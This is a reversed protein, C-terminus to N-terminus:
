LPIFVFTEPADLVGPNDQIFRIGANRLVQAANIDRDHIEGCHPCEWSRDSLELKKGRHIGTNSCIHSSPFFRDAFFIKCHGSHLAKYKLMNILIGWAADQISKALRRNKLMNLISLIELVIVQNENVIKRSLNHYQDKRQNAVRQDLIAVQVRNKEFNASGKQKRSLNKRLRRSRRESRRYFRHNVTKDGNSFTLLSNLGFDLGIFGTGNTKEPTVWCLFSVFYQGAPNRSITIQSAESPLPRDLVIRVLGPIRELKLHKDGVLRFKPAFLRYSDYHGKEKLKPRGKKFVKKKGISGSYAVSLDTLKNRLASSSVELLYFYEPMRRFETVCAQLTFDRTDPFPNNESDKQWNLIQCELTNRVINWVKRCCGFTKEFIEAQEENPYVRCKIGIQYDKQFSQINPKM